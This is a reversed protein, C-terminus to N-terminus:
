RRSACAASSIWSHCLRAGNRRRWTMTLGVIGLLGVSAPEPIPLPLPVGADDTFALGMPQSLGSSAFVSGVGAPTFKAITALNAVYLNGASDFALAEPFAVGSNAFVSGVGDPTFKEITDDGVNAAYLNGASDFALGTPENLGDSAFVSGVGGPTFKVITNDVFM